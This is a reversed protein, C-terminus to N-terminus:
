PKLSALHADMDAVAADLAVVEGRSAGARAEEVYPRGWSLDDDGLAMREAMLRRVADEVSAFSGQAIQAELWQQRDPPITINMAVYLYASPAPKELPPTRGALPGARLGERM